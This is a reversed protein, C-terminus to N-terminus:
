QVQWKRGSQREIVSKYKTLGPERSARRTPHLALAVSDNSLTELTGGKWWRCAHVCMLSAISPVWDLHVSHSPYTIENIVMSRGENTLFADLRFWDAGTAAQIRAAAHELKQRAAAVVRRLGEEEKDCKTRHPTQPTFVGRKLAESTNIMSRTNPCARVSSLMSSSDQSSVPDFVFRFLKGFGVEHPIAGLTGVQRELRGLVVNLKIEFAAAGRNIRCVSAFNQGSHTCCLSRHHHQLGQPQSSSPAQVSALHEQVLVGRFQNHTASRQWGPLRFWGEVTTCVSNLHMLVPASPKLSLPTWAVTQEDVKLASVVNDHGGDTLSKIIVNSGNPLRQLAHLLEARQYRHVHGVGRVEEALAGYYIKAHPLGLKDLLVAALLKNEIVAFTPNTAYNKM